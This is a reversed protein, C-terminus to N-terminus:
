GATASVCRSTAGTSVLLEVERGALRIDRELEALMRELRKLPDRIGLVEGVALQSGGEMGRLPFGCRALEPLLPREKVRSHLLGPRPILKM